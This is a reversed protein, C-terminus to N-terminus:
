QYRRLLVSVRGKKTEGKVTEVKVRGRGRVSIIDGEKLNVSPDNVVNWNVKVKEAAIDGAMKTRSVGYGAAALADLRLSSVTTNIDKTNEAPADVSQPDVREAKVRVRSIKSLNNVIYDAIGEDVIVHCGQGTVIIDGVKERKIGLALISGLFDRHSLNQYKLNGTVSLPVLQRDAEQMDLYEPGIVLRRREATEYGGAWIFSIGPLRLVPSILNQQYPDYFDTVVTEHNKLVLTIKDLVRAIFKRDDPSQVRELLEKRDM